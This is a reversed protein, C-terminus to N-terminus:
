FQDQVTVPLRTRTAPGPGTYKFEQLVPVTTQNGDTMTRDLEPRKGTRLVLGSPVICLRELHFVALLNKSEFAQAHEDNDM